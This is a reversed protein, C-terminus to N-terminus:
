EMKVISTSTCDGKEIDTGGFNVPFDWFNGLSTRDNYLITEKSRDLPRYGSSHIIRLSMECCEETYTLVPLSELEGAYPKKMVQAVYRIGIVFMCNLLLALIGIVDNFWHSSETVAVEHAVYVAALPLYIATLVVIFHVYLFLLPQDYHDYMDAIVARVRLIKARFDQATQADIFGQQLADQVDALSWTILERVRDSKLGSRKIELLRDSEDATLLQYRENLPMFFETYSYVPSLGVYGLIYASNLFRVLRIGREFPLTAKAMNAVDFIRGQAGTSNQFFRDFRHSYQAHFFVLFFTMVAGLGAIHNSSIAFVKGTMEQVIRLLAYIGLTFWLLLDRTMIRWFTGEYSFLICFFSDGTRKLLARRKTETAQIENWKQEYEEVFCSDGHLLLSQRFQSRQRRGEHDIM